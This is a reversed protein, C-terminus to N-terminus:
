RRPFPQSTAQKPSTSSCKMPQKKATQSVDFTSSGDITLTGSTVRLMPRGTAVSQRTYGTISIELIGDLAVGEPFFFGISSLAGRLDSLLVDRNTDATVAAAQLDADAFLSLQLPTLLSTLTFMGADNSHLITPLRL